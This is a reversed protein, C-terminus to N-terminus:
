NSSRRRRESDHNKLYTFGLLLSYERRTSRRRALGRSRPHRRWNAPTPAAFQSCSVAQMHKPDIEVIRAFLPLAKSHAEQRLYVLGLNLLIAKDEPSLELAASLRRDGSRRPQHPLLDCRPQQARSTVRSRACYPNSGANRLRTTGPWSRGSRGDFVEKAPEAACLWWACLCLCAASRM